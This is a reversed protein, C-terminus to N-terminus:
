GRGVKAVLRTRPLKKFGLRRYLGEARAHEVDVELDVAAGGLIRVREKVAEVLATGVGQGRCRPLVYLEDLWSSKGGHELSWIFSVYAVGVVEDGEKAVLFFGLRGDGLVSRIAGGLQKGTTDSGHEQLQVSLLRFM